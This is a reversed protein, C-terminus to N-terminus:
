RQQIAALAEASVGHEALLSPRLTAVLGLQDAFMPLGFGPDHEAAFQVLEADTFRGAQRIADVDLFDRAAAGATSPALRTRSRTPSRSAM